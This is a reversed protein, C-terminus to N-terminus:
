LKRKNNYILFDYIFVIFLGFLFYEYFKMINYYIINKIRKFSVKEIRYYIDRLM